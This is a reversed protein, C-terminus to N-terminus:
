VYYCHNPHRRLEEVISATLPNGYLAIIQAAPLSTEKLLALAGIDSILNRRVDLELLQALHPSDALAIAGPDGSQNETLDLLALHRMRPSNALARIGAPGIQNQWLVLTRLPGLHPSRALATVGRDGIQNHRLLLHELHACLPTDALAALGDDGISNDNLGLHRLPPPVLTSALTLAGTRGIGNGDLELHTLQHLMTSNVLAQVEEAGLHNMALRLKTLRCWHPIAALARIAAPELLCQNLSLTTLEPVIPSRALLSAHPEKLSLTSLNLERLNVLRTSALLPPLVRELSVGNSLTLSTITSLLPSEVLTNWQYPQQISHFGLGEVWAWAESELLDLRQLLALQDENLSLQVLGRQFSCLGVLPALPGLWSAQHATRLARAQCLLDRRRPDAEPLHATLCQIRVFTGRPDGHEELWDALILRPTDDDPQDKCAQLLALVEPRASASLSPFM